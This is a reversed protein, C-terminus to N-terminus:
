GRDFLCVTITTGEDEKSFLEVSGEYIMAIHKVIALGLGTGGTKKSRSRDVRYFREFVRDRAEKPIGIGTDSVKIKVKGAISDIDVNVVGDPKNYKIANDILNYFLETMQSRNATLVGAGSVEIRVNQDVAKQELSEVVEGAVAMLDVPEFVIDGNEEDLQSLMMIDEILTILRAAEAKIKGYFQTKDSEKVIGSELMETNGYITTLPTKLEHSVNASFERRLKEAMSKETIDLFLIIAGSGSVPSFYVRYTKRDHSLNMEGRKGSLAERMYESLEVDRFIELINKGSVPSELSFISSASKNVSLVKGQQDVLVIGERMSDMIADITDSRSQLDSMQNTIQERQESITRVFPALEDYPSTLKEAFSVNNIPDVVRRTLRGALFYAAVVIILVVVFVVPLAGGFMGWISNTTKSLRLILGDDLKVAYYYTEQGLTDSIRLSEGVGTELASKIEERDSHNQLTSANRENDYLVEGDSAVITMRMDTVHLTDFNESTITSKLMSAREHVEDQISSSLQTYFVICLAVSVVLLSLITLFLISSFIRKQM